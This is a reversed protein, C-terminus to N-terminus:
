TCSVSCSASAHSRSRPLFIVMEPASSALCHPQFSRRACRLSPSQSVSLSILRRPFCIITSTVATALFGSMSGSVGTVMMVAGSIRGGAAEIIERVGAVCHATLNDIIVVDGRKLTPALCQELYARFMAGTMPGNFVFPVVVGDHRLGAVFTVTEWKGQPVHDIVREGRESRGYLRAMNTSTATEDIFVLHAPDFLGQERM